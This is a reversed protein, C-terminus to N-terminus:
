SMASWRLYSSPSTTLYPAPSDHLGVGRSRDGLLGLLGTLSLALLGGRVLLGRGRLGM